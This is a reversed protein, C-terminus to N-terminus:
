IVNVAIVLVLKAFTCTKAALRDVSVPTLKTAPGGAFAENSALGVIKIASPDLM